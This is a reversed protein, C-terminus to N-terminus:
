EPERPTFLATVERRVIKGTANRPLEDVVLVNTPCKYHAIKSRCAAIIEQPDAAAAREMLVAAAVTEGWRYHPIGVVCAEVVGPLEAIAAEVEGAYVNEGATIIRDNLRGVLFLCGDQLYGLDGTRLWDGAFLKATADPRRWYGACNQKSQTWVEGIQGQGVARGGDTDVIQIEVGTLTRGASSLNEGPNRHDDASLFCIPGNTESMGYGQYFRVNPFYTTMRRLVPLSIPSGGYWLSRLSQYSHSRAGTEDMLMQILAPVLMTDTVGYTAVSREVNSPSADAILVLTGGLQSIVSLWSLGSVHFLPLVLLFRSDDLSGTLAVQTSAVGIQENTVMVGKPEGTTGSTYVLAALDAPQPTSLMVDDAARASWRELDVVGLVGDLWVVHPAISTIASAAEFVARFESDVFAVTPDADGVVKALEEASLRWNAGVLVARIRSTAAAVIPHASRNRGLYLVRDGREVGLTHLMSATMQATGDWRAYSIVGLDDILAARDPSTRAWYRVVESLSYDSPTTGLEAQGKWNGPM